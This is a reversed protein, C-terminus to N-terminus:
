YAAADDAIAAAAATALLPTSLLHLPVLAWACLGRLCSM